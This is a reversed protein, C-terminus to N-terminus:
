GLSKILFSVDYRLLKMTERRNNEEVYDFPTKGQNDVINIEAGSCLSFSFLLLLFIM